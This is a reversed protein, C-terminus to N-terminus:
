IQYKNFPDFYLLYTVLEQENKYKSYSKSFQMLIVSDEIKKDDNTYNISM